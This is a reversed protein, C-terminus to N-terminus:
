RELATLEFIVFVEQPVFFIIEFFDIKWVFEVYNGQINWIYPIYYLCRLLAFWFGICVALPILSSHIRKKMYTNERIRAVLGLM